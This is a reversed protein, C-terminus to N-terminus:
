KANKYQFLRQVHQVRDKHAPHGPKNYPDDPNGLIANVEQSAEAPSLAQDGVGGKSPISDEGYMKEGIGHLFKILHPNSGLSPDEALMKQLDESGNEKLVKKSMTLKSDFAEGWEKKLNEVGENIESQLKETQSDLSTKTTQDISELIKQAQAKPVRNEHFLKKFSELSEETLQSGEPAKLDYGEIEPSWGVKEFYEDWEQQPSQETPVQIGKEGVKKKTHVYSKALEAHNLKGDKGVFPKISPSLKVDDPMGEPWEIKDALDGWIAKLQENTQPNAPAPDNGPAPDNSPAPAPDDGLLSGPAPDNAPPDSPAPDNAPDPEGTSVEGRQNMALLLFMKLFKNM